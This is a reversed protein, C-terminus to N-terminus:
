ARLGPRPSRSPSLGDRMLGQTIAWAVGIGGAGAGLIVIRQDRLAEGRL